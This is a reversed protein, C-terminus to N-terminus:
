TLWAVYSSSIANGAFIGIWAGAILAPGYPVRSKRNIAGVALGGLVVVGGVLPGAILGVMAQPMGLYGAVLGLLGATKVDGFGIGRPYVLWPLGYFLLWVGMGIGATAWSSWEGSHFSHALLMIAVVGFTPFVISDPLRGVDIDIMVLVIGIFMLYALALALLSLGWALYVGVVGIGVAIEVLPYRWSIPQACSRCRGRLALWSLVPINDHWAIRSDCKPCHSPTTVWEEGAPIRAILVNAFSGFMIAVSAVAFLTM